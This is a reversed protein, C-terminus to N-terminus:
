GGTGGPPRTGSSPPWRLPRDEFETNLVVTSTTRAVGPIAKIQYLVDELARAHTTRIKALFDYEGAVSHLELVEPMERLRPAVERCHVGGDNRIAVFATFHLGLRQPDIRLSFREIVGREVMKRVREHVAATSLGVESAVDAYSRRSDASLATLIGIDIEDLQINAQM